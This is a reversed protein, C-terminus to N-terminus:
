SHHPLHDVSVNLEEGYPALYEQKSLAATDVPLSLDSAAALTATPLTATSLATAIVRDGGEESEPAQAVRNDTLWQAFEDETHVVVQSRMSGHYSGCLEACVIDYTGPKTAVFRLQAVQGPLADQKLRFAPVWFSHIVDKAEINLQVDQNVPIHLEGTIMGGDPYNFIWAYQLGTVNVLVNADQGEANPSAGFGYKPVVEDPSSGGSGDALLTPVDSVTSTPAQAVLTSQSQGMMSSSHMSHDGVSLGGMDRYVDVSYLGLGIVIIAPIATWFVELELNGELPVGDSDDGKRRRYRIAFFLIAGEVIIFLATGIVVMVDFLGDVIPAEASAQVPLLNHHNGYWLSVLTIVIGATLTLLSAPIQKM